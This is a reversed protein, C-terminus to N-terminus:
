ATVKSQVMCCGLIFFRIKQSIIVKMQQGSMDMIYKGGSKRFVFTFREMLLFRYSSSVGKNYRFVIHLLVVYHLLKVLYDTICSFMKGLHETTTTNNDFVYEM